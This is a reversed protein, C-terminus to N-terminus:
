VLGMPDDLVIKYRVVKGHQEKEVKGVVELGGIGSKAKQYSELSYLVFTKPDMAYQPNKAPILKLQIKEKRVNMYDTEGLQIDEDISPHSSFSNTVVRGFNYCVLNEKSSSNYVSCDIATEKVSKLIEDNIKTKLMAIDYLNEDTTIPKKTIRSVDRLMMEINKNNTKQEESFVSMYLFVQVTRLEEPLDKHSCIRRARGIVQEIRSMNWYPEVIHVFRTNKLDVGESGSATIMLVKIIDGYFNNNSIERLQSTISEPVFQWDTNYVNRIIEKEEVTETGTYLVFRPKGLINAFNNIEWNNTQPNRKIKFEAFGNAELIMKLIGIGEITRFQSYILHNGRNEPNEINLLIQHFKPSYMQLNERTLVQEERPKSPDYSIKELAEEVRKTYSEDKFKGKRKEGPEGEEEELDDGNEENIEHQFLTEMRKKEHDEIKDENEGQYVEDETFPTPRGPPDPFAFNCAARSYMRYSSAITFLANLERNQQKAKNKAINKEKEAEVNRIGAYYSFQYASLPTRVIHYTRERETKGDSQIFSPMLQEDASRFYSSLGLIRKKFTTENKVSTHVNDIFLNIFTDTDDPLAKYNEVKTGTEIIIINNKKLVNRVDLIFDDDSINGTEDLHIGNYGEEIYPTGGGKHIDYGVQYHYRPDDEINMDEELEKVNKLFTKNMNIMGDKMQYVDEENFSDGKRNRKTRRKQSSKKGNKKKISHKKLIPRTDYEGGKALDEKKKHKTKDAHVFGFPNRTIILKNNTFEIYDYVNIKSRHFIKIIEEANLKFGAPANPSIGLQFTWTKIYGRLINFLVAIENPYNIIPTGTLLIIKANTAKMLYDYLIYSTSKKSKLKNVIRSVFNHAEDIVVTKNDFPNITYQQTIEELKKKTIGNYNIDIYKSRIMLNLQNDLEKQQETSLNKYNSQKKTIDVLWAGRKNEIIERPIQLIQSFLPIYEPKGETSVFEWFQNKKYMPDGCEKLQSFFNMKLSAPTMLVIQKHSKMGEAIGISTCTKGSGLGHYLLLGRYPTIVNLYERVLRQHLFLEIDTNKRKDCSVDKDETEKLESQYPKLMENIRQIYKKRNNLYFSSTKVVVKERKPLRNILPKNNIKVNKDLVFKGDLYIPEYIKRTKRKKKDEEKEKKEPESENEKNPESPEEKEKKEPEQPKRPKIIIQKKPKGKKLLDDNEKKAKKFEKIAEENEEKADKWKKTAEKIEEDYEAKKEKNKEDKKKKKLFDINEKAIQLKDKTADVNRNANDFKVRANEIEDSIDDKKEEEEEQQQQHNEEDQDDEQNEEKKNDDENIDLREEDNGKREKDLDIVDNSPLVVDDFDKLLEILPQDVMPIKTQPTIEVVKKDTKKVVFIDMKDKIRNLVLDRNINVDLRKDVIITKRKKINKGPPNLPKMSRLATSDDKIDDNVPPSDPALKTPQVPLSDEIYRLQIKFKPKEKPQKKQKLQDLNFINM